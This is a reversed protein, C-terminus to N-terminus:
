KLCIDGDHQFTIVLKKWKAIEVQHIPKLQWM